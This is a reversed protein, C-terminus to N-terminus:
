PSAGYKGCPCSEKRRTTVFTCAPASSCLAAIALHGTLNRNTRRLRANGVILQDYRSTGPQGTSCSPLTNRFGAIQRACGPFHRRFTTNAV